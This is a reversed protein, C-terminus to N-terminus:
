MAMRKVAALQEDIKELHLRIQTIIASITEQTASSITCIDAVIAMNAVISDIEKSLFNAQLQVNEVIRINEMLNYTINEIDVLKMNAILLKNELQNVRENTSILGIISIVLASIALTTCLKM